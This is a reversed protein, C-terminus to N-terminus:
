DDKAATPSSIRFLLRRERVMSGEEIRPHNATPAGPAIDRLVRVLIGDSPAKITCADIQRNLKRTKAADQEPIVICYQGFVGDGRYANHRNATSL